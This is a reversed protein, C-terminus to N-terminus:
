MRFLLQFYVNSCTGTLCFWRWGFYRSAMLNADFVSKYNTNGIACCPSRSSTGSNISTWSACKLGFHCIWGREWDGKLVTAIATRLRSSGITQTALDFHKKSAAHLYAMCNIYRSNMPFILWFNQPLINQFGLIALGADSTIDMPNMKLDKAKMYIVDLKATKYGSCQFMRTAEARGAFFEVWNFTIDDQLFCFGIKIVSDHSLFFM